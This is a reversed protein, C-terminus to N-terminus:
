TRANHLFWRWMNNMPFYPKFISKFTESNPNLRTMSFVGKPLRFLIKISEINSFKISGTTLRIFSIISNLKKEQHLYQNWWVSNPRSLTRYQVVKQIHYAYIHTYCYLSLQESVHRKTSDPILICLTKISIKPGPSFIKLGFHGIPCM